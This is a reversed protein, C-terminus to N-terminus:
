ATVRTALGSVESASPRWGPQYEVTQGHQDIEDTRATESLLTMHVPDDLWAKTSVDLLPWQPELPSM